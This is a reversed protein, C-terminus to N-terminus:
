GVFAVRQAVYALYGFLLLGGEWRVIRGGYTSSLGLLLLSFLACVVLDIEGGPPM